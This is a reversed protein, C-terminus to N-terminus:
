YDILHLKIKKDFSNCGIEVLRKYEGKGRVIDYATEDLLTQLADDLLKTHLCGGKNDKNRGKSGCKGCKLKGNHNLWLIIKVGVKDMAFTWIKQGTNITKIRYILPEDCVLHEETINHYPINTPNNEEIILHSLLGHICLPSKDDDSLQNSFKAANFQMCKKDCTWRGNIKSVNLLRDFAIKNKNMDYECFIMWQDCVKFVCENNTLLKDYIMNDSETCHYDPYVSDGIAKALSTFNEAENQLLLPEMYSNTNLVNNFTENINDCLETEFEDVDDVKTDNLFGKNIEQQYNKHKQHSKSRSSSSKSNTSITNTDSMFGSLFEYSNYTPINNNLPNYQTDLTDSTHKTKRRKQVRQPQGSILSTQGHQRRHKYDYNTFDMLELQNTCHIYQHLSSLILTTFTVIDTNYSNIIYSLEILLILISLLVFLKLSKSISQRKKYKTTADM